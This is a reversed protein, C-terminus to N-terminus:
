FIEGGIQLELPKTFMGVEMLGDGRVMSGDSSRSRSANLLLAIAWGVYTKLQVYTPSM